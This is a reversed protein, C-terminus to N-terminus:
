LRRHMLYEDLFRGDRLFFGRERTGYVAFGFKKYLAVGRMNETAVELELQLFGSERALRLCRELLISGVGLGWYPRKLSIGFEGRHRHKDFRTVPRVGADGALRGDIWAGIMIERPDDALNRLYTAEEEVSLRVEDPYRIMYETEGSTQRIYELMEEADAEGPTRLTCIRGDRLCAKEEAFRM